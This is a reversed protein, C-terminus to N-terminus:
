PLIRYNSIPPFVFYHEAHKRFHESELNLAEEKYIAGRRDLLKPGREDDVFYLSSILDEKPEIRRDCKCVQKALVAESNVKEAYQEKTYMCWDWVKLPFGNKIKLEDIVAQKVNIVNQPPKKM